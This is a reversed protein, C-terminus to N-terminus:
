RAAGVTQELAALRKEHDDVRPALIREERLLDRVEGVARAVAVLETALRIETEAQRHDIQSLRENTQDLRDNTRRVEDRIEILVQTTLDLPGGNKKKSAM